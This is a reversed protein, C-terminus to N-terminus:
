IKEDLYIEITEHKHPEFKQEVRKTVYGERRGEFIYWGPVLKITRKKHFGVYGVSKVIVETLGDSLVTVSIEKTFDALLRELKNQNIKLRKSVVPVQASATILRRAEDKNRLYFLKEPDKLLSNTGKLIETVKEIIQNIAIFDARSLFQKSIKRAILSAREWQDKKMESRIESMLGEYELTQLKEEAKRITTSYRGSPDKLGLARRYLRRIEDLDKGDSAINLQGILFQEKEIQKIKLLNNIRTGVGTEDTKLSLLKRLLSLELDFDRQSRAAEINDKLTKVATWDAVYGMVKLLEPNEPQLKALEELRLELKEIKKRGWLNKIQKELQGVKADYFDLQERLRVRLKRIEPLAEAFSTSVAFATIEGLKQMAKESSIISSSEENYSKFRVLLREKIESYLSKFAREDSEDDESLPRASPGRYARTEQGISKGRMLPSQSSGTGPTLVTIDSQLGKNLNEAELVKEAPVKAITEPSVSVPAFFFASFVGTLLAVIVCLILLNKRRKSSGAARIALELM